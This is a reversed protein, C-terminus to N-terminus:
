VLAAIGARVMPYAARAARYAGYLGAGMEAVKGGQDEIHKFKAYADDVFTGGVKTALVPKPVRTGNGVFNTNYM